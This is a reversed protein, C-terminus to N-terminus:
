GFLEALASLLELMPDPIDDESGINQIEGNSYEVHVNWLLTEGKPEIDVSGCYDEGWWFIELSHVIWRLLKTLIKPSPSITQQTGDQQTCIIVPPTRSVQYTEKIYVLDGYPDYVEGDISLKLTQIFLEQKESEAGFSSVTECLDYLGFVKGRAPFRPDTKEVMDNRKRDPPPASSKGSPSTDDTEDAASTLTPCLGQLYAGCSRQRQFERKVKENRLDQLFTGSTEEKSDSDGGTTSSYCSDTSDLSTSEHACEGIKKSLEMKSWEFQYAARIYWCRGEMDLDAELIVINQTWGVKMAQELVEPYGEYMRYFDRMRRLNRPSFGTREPYNATIYEAAMVAAGKEPRGSVLRGLELYLEIQSLDTALAEDIEAYLGSYDIDKRINM